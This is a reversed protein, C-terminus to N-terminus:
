LTLNQKQLQQIPELLVDIIRRQRTVVEATATQGAKLEQGSIELQNLRVEVRYVSGLQQDVIADPAIYGVKGAVTGYRQFPFANFKMQVPMGAKVFGAEQNPLNASLVLTASQPMIEAFTQGPQTVEGSHHLKLDTIVGSVPAYIFTQDRQTRARKLANETAVMKAQLQSSQMQLQQLKQQAQLQKQKGEAATQVLNAQLQQTTAAAKQLDGETQTVTQQRQRLTQEVEFLHDQAIAGENVLPQLRDLREQYATMETQLDALLQRHTAADTQSETMAASQSQMQAAAIAQQTQMELGTKEILGQTQAWQLRDAYIQEQLGEVETDVLRRDLEAIIAGAKVQAGEQVLIRAVTAQTTPQVKYTKGKPILTGTARSVEQVQGFWAWSGFACCFLIGAIALRWPLSSPPQDLLNQLPPSWQPPPAIADPLDPAAVGGRVHLSEHPSLPTLEQLDTYSIPLRM